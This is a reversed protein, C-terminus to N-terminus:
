HTPNAGVYASMLANPDDPMHDGRHTVSGNIMVVFRDCLGKALYANQEVILMSTGFHERVQRLRLLVEDVLIPALGLTPEDLLLVKPDAMLGRGIALMQQEGGSLTQAAQKLRESLRPFVDLVEGLRRAGPDPKSFAGLLLNERVSMEPFVERGEPVHIVGARVIEHPLRNTLDRGDITIRGARARVVGSITKMLTTKGAGNPGLVAVAEGASVGISVDHLIQAKGYGAVLRDIVFGSM